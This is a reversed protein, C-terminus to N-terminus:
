EGRDALLAGKGRATVAAELAAVMATFAPKPAYAVDFPLPQMNAHSPNNFDWLWTHQMLPVCSRLLPEFWRPRSAEVEGARVLDTFGWTEFSKCAPQLLALHHFSPNGGPSDGKPEVGWGEPGSGSM